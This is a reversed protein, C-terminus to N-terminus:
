RMLLHLLQDLEAEPDAKSAAAQLGTGRTTESFKGHKLASICLGRTM